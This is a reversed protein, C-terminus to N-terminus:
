EMDLLIVRKIAAIQYGKRQLFAFIRQKARFDATKKNFKKKELWLLIQQEEIEEPSKQTAEVMEAYIIDTTEPIIGKAQLEQRLLSLSKDHLHYDIYDRAFLHDDLYGLSLLYQTAGDIIDAPYEGQVLKQRLQKETYRRKALLHLARNRARKVLVQERIERYAEGSLFAGAEIGYSEVENHYLVFAFEENIFIRSRGRRGAEVATVLLEGRYAM